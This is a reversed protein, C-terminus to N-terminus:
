RSPLSWRIGVDVELFNREKSNGCYTIIGVIDNCSFSQPMSAFIEFRYKSVLFTGPSPSQRYWASDHELFNTAFYVLKSFSTDLMRFDNASHM